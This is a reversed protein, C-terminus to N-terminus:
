AASRGRRRGIAKVVHEADRGVGHVMASSMAYLFPLGVFYLGEEGSAVGREHRPQHQEDFVPLDIWRFGPHYGTCWVVNSVDLVRGDELVPRGGQVSVVRSAREVGVAALDAAKIRVLPGGKSIIHPRAKRGIPTGTTLVRHFVIRMLMPELINRGLWKRIDFPVYGTERGAMFVKHTRGLEVAIESGSNGAGVLLVPGPKLQSPNRYDSSHLQTIAPDLESALAPTLPKQYGGMAVVVHPAEFRQGGAEVLYRGGQKSLREVELGCRVPLAFHQAYAQLYDAMEDKTPFYDRAAPYPMGALGDMAAPSFLRLSDWRKRWSDGVRENGELMVFRVGLKKLYYGVSLGAQGAGIVVVDFREAAESRPKTASLGGLQRFANGEEVLQPGTPELQQAANSRAHNKAMPAEM